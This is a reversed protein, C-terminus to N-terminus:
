TPIDADSPSEWHRSQDPLQQFLTYELSDILDSHPATPQHQLTSRFASLLSTHKNDDSVSTDGVVSAGAAGQATLPATDRLM